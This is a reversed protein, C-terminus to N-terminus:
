LLKVTLRINDMCGYFIVLESIEYLIKIQLVSM